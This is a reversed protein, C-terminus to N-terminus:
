FVATFIPGEALHPPWLMPWASRAMGIYPAPSTSPARSAALLQTAGRPWLSVPRPFPSTRASATSSAAPGASQAVELATGIASSCPPPHATPGFSVPCSTPHPPLPESAAASSTAGTACDASSEVNRLLYFHIVEADLGLGGSPASVIHNVLCVCQAAQLQAAVCDALESCQEALADYISDGPRLLWTVIDGGFPTLDAVVALSTPGGPPLGGALFSPLSAIEHTLMRLCTDAALDLTRRALDFLAIPDPDPGGCITRFGQAAEFVTVIFFDESVAPEAAAAAVSTTTTSTSTVDYPVSPFALFRALGPRTAAVDCGRFCLPAFTGDRLM